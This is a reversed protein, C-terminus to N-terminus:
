PRSLPVHAQTRETGSARGAGEMEAARRRLFGRVGPIEAVGNRMRCVVAGRGAPASPLVLLRLRPLRVAAAVSSRPARGYPAPRGATPIRFYFTTGRGIGTAGGHSEVIGRCIALGLGRAAPIVVPRLRNEESRLSYVERALVQTEFYATLLVATVFAITFLSALTRWQRMDPPSLRM